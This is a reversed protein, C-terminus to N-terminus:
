PRWTLSSRTLMGFVAPWAGPEARRVRKSALAAMLLLENYSFRDDPLWPEHLQLVNLTLTGTKDSCLIEPHVLSHRSRPCSQM